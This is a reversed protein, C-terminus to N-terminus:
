RNRRIIYVPSDPITPEEGYHFMQDKRITDFRMEMRSDEVVKQQMNQQWVSRARKRRVISVLAFTMLLVLIIRREHQYNGM